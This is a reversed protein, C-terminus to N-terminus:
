LQLFIVPRKSLRKTNKSYIEPKVLNEYLVICYKCDVRVTSKRTNQTDRWPTYQLAIKYIKGSHKWSCICIQLLSQGM